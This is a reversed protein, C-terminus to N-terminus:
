KLFVSISMATYHATILFIIIVNQVGRFVSINRHLTIQVNIM